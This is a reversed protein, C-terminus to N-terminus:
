WPKLTMTLNRIIVEVDQGNANYSFMSAARSEEEAIEPM